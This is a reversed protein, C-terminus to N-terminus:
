FEELETELMYQTTTVKFSNYGICWEGRMIFYIETVDGEEELIFRDRENALFQRPMFGFAVEYVFNSDFESGVKFFHRFAPKELIDQFLFKCM